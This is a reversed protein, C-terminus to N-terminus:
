LGPLQGVWETSGAQSLCLPEIETGHSIREELLHNFNHLFDSGRPMHPIHVCDHSLQM